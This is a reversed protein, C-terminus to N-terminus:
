IQLFFLDQHLVMMEMQAAVSTEGSRQGVEAAQGVWVESHGEEIVGRTSVDAEQLGRPSVTAELVTELGQLGVSVDSCKDGAPGGGEGQLGQTKGLGEAKSVVGTSVGCM